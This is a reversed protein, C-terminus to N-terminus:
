KDDALLDDTMGKLSDIRQKAIAESAGRFRVVDDPSPHAPIQEVLSRLDRLPESLLDALLASRTVRVRSSLYRLNAGVDPPLTFSMRVM